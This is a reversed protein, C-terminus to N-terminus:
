VKLMPTSQGRLQLSLDLSAVSHASLLSPGPFVGTDEPSPTPFAWLRWWPKLYERRIFGELVVVAAMLAQLEVTSLTSPLAHVSHEQLSSTPLRRTCMREPAVESGKFAGKSLLGESGPPLLQQDSGFKGLVCWNRCASILKDICGDFCTCSTHLYRLIQPTPSWVAGTVRGSHQPECLPTSQLRQCLGEHQWCRM